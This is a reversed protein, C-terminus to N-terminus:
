AKEVPIYIEFTTGKGVESEVSIKGHHLEIIEKAISLGLGVSGPLNDNVQVFKDFIKDIFVPDIGIGTDSIKIVAYDNQGSLEIHIKGGRDTFKLANAIFNEVARMLYEYDARAPPLSNSFSYGLEINKEKSQLSFNKVVQEILNVLSVAEFTLNVKGSEIRTLELIHHVLKNLREYDEKMSTVLYKQKENITGLVEDELLGLAMGVATLPTKLEHSIKGLFESKLKDLEHYKTIDNFIFVYGAIDSDPIKIMSHTLKFYRKGDPLPVLLTMNQKIQLVDIRQNKALQEKFDHDKILGTLNGGEIPGSFIARFASNASLINLNNDTMLVPENISEIITESKKKEYLNRSLNLREYMELKESMLNFKQALTGIEDNSIVEIRASFNGNSINEATKTLEQIPKALYNSFKTSFLFSVLIGCFLIFMMFVAATGSMKGVQSNLRNMYNHNVEFIGHSKSKMDRLLEITLKFHANNQSIANYVKSSDLESIIKVLSKYDQQLSSLLEREQDTFASEMAKEYWFLFVDNSADFQIKGKSFDEQFIALVGNMQQDIAKNMNDVAVISSYNQNITNNLSRNIKYFNFIGWFSISLMIILIILFGFLIKERLNARSYNFPLRSLLKM